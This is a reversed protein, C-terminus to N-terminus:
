DMQLGGNLDVIEGTIFGALPSALFRVVHAFEEPECLRGVPIQAILAQRQAETLQDTVMPTKVYAPSIGNATVGHPALERALAFTLTTLAGKSTSYATGATLGGTKAALSCTNIIRGWRRRKMEPAVARALYFAGDLNAAFVRRWEEDDTAEVKNNSLIGANNVLIDVAGLAAAIRAHGARVAAPDGIDFAIPLVAGGLEGACRENAAANVDVLAVKCGDELLVKVAALGMTGAAGTVLAVKGHLPRNDSM